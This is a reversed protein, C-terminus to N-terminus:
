FGVRRPLEQKQVDAGLGVMDAVYRYVLEPHRSALQQLSETLVPQEQGAIIDALMAQLGREVVVGFCTGVDADDDTVARFVATFEVVRRYMEDSLEISAM